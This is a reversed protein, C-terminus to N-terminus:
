KVTLIEVNGERRDISISVDDGYRQLLLDVAGQGVRLNKIRIEQLFPPL